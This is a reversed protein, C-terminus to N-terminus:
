YGLRFLSRERDKEKGLIWDQWYDQKTTNVLEKWLSTLPKALCKSFQVYDLDLKKAFQRTRKVTAETDNPAGILFFGKRRQIAPPAKKNSEMKIKPANHSQDYADWGTRGEEAADIITFM